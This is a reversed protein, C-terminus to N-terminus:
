MDNTQAKLSTALQHNVTKPKVLIYGILLLLALSMVVVASVLMEAERQYHIPAEPAAPPPAGVEIM